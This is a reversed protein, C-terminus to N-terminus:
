KCWALHRGREVGDKAGEECLLPRVEGGCGATVLGFGFRFGLGQGLWLGLGVGLGLGLRVNVRALPRRVHSPPPVPLARWRTLLPVPVAVAHARSRAKRPARTRVVYYTACIVDYMTCLVSDTLSGDTPFTGHQSAKRRCRLSTRRGRPAYVKACMPKGARLHAPRPTLPEHLRAM